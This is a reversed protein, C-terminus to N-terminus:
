HIIVWLMTGDALYIEGGVPAIEIAKAITKVANDWSNDDYSNDGEDPNVYIRGVFNISLKQNNVNVTVDYNGTLSTYNAKFSGNVIKRTTINDGIALTFNCSISLVETTGNRYFNVKVTSNTAILNLVIYNDNVVKNNVLNKFDPNNNGWWNDNAAFSSASYIAGCEDATNNVFISNSVTCNVAMNYIADGSMTSNNEFRSNLVTCHVSGNNMIAGGYMSYINNIFTSNDITFNVGRLNYIAGGNLASNNIFISNSVTFNAAVNFVVGGYSCEGNIFTCNSVTFNVDNVCNYIVGDM